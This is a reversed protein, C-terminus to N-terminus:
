SSTGRCRRDYTLGRGTGRAPGSSRAPRGSSPPYTKWATASSSLAAANPTSEEGTAVGAVYVRPRAPRPCFGTGFGLTKLRGAQMVAITAAFALASFGALLAYLLLQVTAHIM